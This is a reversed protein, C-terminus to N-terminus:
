VVITKGDEATELELSPLQDIMEPGLHTVILRRCGLRARHALLTQYDLHHKVPRDYTYAECVFLDSGAAVELLTETWATDGSYALVKGAAAIRLAYAPAGSPHAVPYATVALPGISTAQREALEVFALPFRWATAAAGPFFVELAAQTRAALGPPGAVVLPRTRRTVHQADLLVFPLGGFHDGHL